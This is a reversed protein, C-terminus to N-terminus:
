RAARARGPTTSRWSQLTCWRTRASVTSRSSTAVYRRSIRRAWPSAPVKTPLCTARASPPPMRGASKGNFSRSSSPLRATTASVWCTAPRARRRMTPRGTRWRGCWRERGDGGGDRVSARRRRPRGASAKTTVAGPRAVTDFRSSTAIRTRPLSRAAWREVKRTTAPATSGRKGMSLHSSSASEGARRPNGPAEVKLGEHAWRAAASTTRASRKGDWPSIEPARTRARPTPRGARTVSPVGAASSNGSPTTAGTSGPGELLALERGEDTTEGGVSGKPLGQSAVGAGVRFPM